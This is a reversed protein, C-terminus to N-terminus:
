SAKGITNWQFCTVPLRIISHSQRKPDVVSLTCVSVRPDDCLQAVSSAKINQLRTTLGPLLSTVEILREDVDIERLNLQQAISRQVIFSM